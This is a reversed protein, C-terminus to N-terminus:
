GPQDGVYKILTWSKDSFYNLNDGGGISGLRPAIQVTFMFAILFASIKLDM